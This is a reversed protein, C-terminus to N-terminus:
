GYVIRRLQRQSLAPAAFRRTTIEASIASWIDANKLQRLRLTHHRQRVYDEVTEDFYALVDAIVRAATGNPLGTSATVYRILDCEVSPFLEPM